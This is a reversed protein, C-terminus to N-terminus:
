GPRRPAPEADLDLNLLLVNVRAPAGIIAGSDEVRADILARVRELNLGRAAAVRAAQYRATEPSIHPDVGSGSATVLEVPAPGNRAVDLAKAREAVKAALDPNSTALNSGGTADAKYDVASPRPYFYRESAFPQAILESGIVTRDRHHVLSGAASSPFVLQAIGWVFAPYVVACVVFTVACAVLARLTERIM